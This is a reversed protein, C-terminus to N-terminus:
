KEARKKARAQVAKLALRQMHAKRAHEVRKSLEAPKLRRDPDIKDAFRDFNAAQRAKATMALGGHM